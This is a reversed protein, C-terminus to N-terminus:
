KLMVGFNKGLYWAAISIPILYFIAVSVEVGTKYDFYGLLALLVSSLLLTRLRNTNQTLKASVDRSLGMNM